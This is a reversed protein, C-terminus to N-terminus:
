VRTIGHRVWRALYTHLPLWTSPSTSHFQFSHLLPGRTWIESKMAPVVMSGFVSSAGTEMRYPGSSTLLGDHTWKNDSGHNYVIYWPHSIHVYLSHELVAQVWFLYHSVYEVKTGTTYKQVIVIVWSIGLWLYRWCQGLWSIVLFCRCFVSGLSM